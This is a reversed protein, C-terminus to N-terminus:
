HPRYDPCDIAEETNAITPRVTCKLRYDNTFFKCNSCPIEHMQKAKSLTDKISSWISWIVLFSFLWACVFCFPIIFPQIARILYSLFQFVAFEETNM